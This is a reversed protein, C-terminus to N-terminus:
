RRPLAFRFVAVAREGHLPEAYGYILGDAADTLTIEMQPLPLEVAYRYLYAGDPDFRDLLLVSQRGAYRRDLLEPHWDTTQVLCGTDDLALLAHIRTPEVIPVNQRQTSVRFRMLRRREELLWDPVRNERPSRTVVRHRGDPLVQHLTYDLAAAWLTGDDAVALSIPLPTRIGATRRRDLLLSDAGAIPHSRGSFDFRRVRTLEEQGDPSRLSTLVFFDSRTGLGIDLPIGPELDVTGELEGANSFIVARRLAMDICLGGSRLLALGVPSTLGLTPDSLDMRLTILGDPDFWAIENRHLDLAAWTRHPGAQVDRIATFPPIDNSGAELVLLDRAPGPAPLPDGDLPRVHNHVYEVGDIEERRPAREAGCAALLGAGLCVLTMLRPFSM